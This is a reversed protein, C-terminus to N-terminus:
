LKFKCFLEKQLGTKTGIFLSAPFLPWDPSLCFVARYHIVSILESLMNKKHLTRPGITHQSNTQSKEDPWADSSHQMWTSRMEVARVSVSLCLCSLCASLRVSACVSPRVSPHLPLRLSPRLSPCVSPRVSPCVSPCLSPCVGLSASVVFVYGCVCVCLCVCVCMRHSM